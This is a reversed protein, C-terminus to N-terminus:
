VEDWGVEGAVAWQMNVPAAMLNRLAIGQGAKLILPRDYEDFKWEIEVRDLDCHHCIIGLQQGFTVGTTTLAAMNLSYRFDSFSPNPSATDKRGCAAPTVTVGGSMDSASTRILELWTVHPPNVPVVTLICVRMRKIYINKTSSPSNRIHLVSGNAGPVATGIQCNWNQMYSYGAFPNIPQGNVDYSITRIAKSPADSEVITGSAGIIPNPILSM